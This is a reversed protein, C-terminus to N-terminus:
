RSPVTVVPSSASQGTEALSFLIMLFTFYRKSVMDTDDIWYWYKKYSVAVYADKPESAGSHIHSLTQVTNSGAPGTGPLVRGEAIHVAPLEISFGLQLMIELMSRSLMAVGHNNKPYLGFEIQFESIGEDLNLLERIRKREAYLPSGEAGTPLVVIVNSGDKGTEVRLGLRGARQIVVLNKVLETFGSDAANGYSANRLGNISGTVCGLVLDVPWGGQILQFVASPPIPQLMSKTFKDGM